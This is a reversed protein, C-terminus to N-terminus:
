TQDAARGRRRAREHLEYALLAQPAGHEAALRLLGVPGLAGVVTAGLAIVTALVAWFGTLLMPVALAPWAIVVCTWGLASAVAALRSHQPRAPRHPVVLGLMAIFTAVALPAARLLIPPDPRTAVVVWEVVSGFGVAMTM